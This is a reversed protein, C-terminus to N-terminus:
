VFLIILVPLSFSLGLRLLAPDTWVRAVLRPTILPYVDSPLGDRSWAALVPGLTTTCFFTLGFLLLALGYRPPRPPPAARPQVWRALWFPPRRALMAPRPRPAWPDAPQDPRPLQGDGPWTPGEDKLESIRSTRARSSAYRRAPRSRWRSAPRRIAAWARRAIVSRSSASAESSSASAM